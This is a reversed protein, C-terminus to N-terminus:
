VLMCWRVCRLQQSCMDLEDLCARLAVAAQGARATLKAYAAQQLGPVDKLAGLPMHPLFSRRM